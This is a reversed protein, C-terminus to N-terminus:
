ANAVTVADAETITITKGYATFVFNTGSVTPTAYVDNREINDITLGSLLIPKRYSGEISDYIGAITTAEGGTTLPNDKFDIIKYGGKIM